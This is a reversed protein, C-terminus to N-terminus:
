KRRLRNSLYLGFLFSASLVSMPNERIFHVANRQIVHSNKQYIKAAEYALRAMYIANRVSKLKDSLIPYM